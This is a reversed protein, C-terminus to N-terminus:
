KDKTLTLTKETVKANENLFEFINKTTDYNNEKLDKLMAEKIQENTADKGLISIANKYMIEGLYSPIVRKTLLKKGLTESSFTKNFLKLVKNNGFAHRNTLSCKVCEYVEHNRGEYYDNEVHSVIMIHDCHEMILLYLEKKEQKIKATLYDKKETLENYLKILENENLKKLKRSIEELEKQNQLIEHKISTIKEM